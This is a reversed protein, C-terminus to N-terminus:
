ISINEASTNPGVGFDVRDSSTGRRLPRVPLRGWGVSRTETRIALDEEELKRQSVSIQGDSM